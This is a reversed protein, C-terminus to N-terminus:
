RRVQRYALILQEVSHQITFLDLFRQRAAAALRARLAPSNVLSELANSLAEPADPQVLLAERDNRVADMVGPIRTSVIAAGFAMAEIIAVPFGESRSPLVFIDATALLAAKEEGVVWGIYKVRDSLDRQEVGALLADVEGDGAVLLEFSVGRAKLTEAASLLTAIGKDEVLRGLYLIIPCRGQIQRVNVDLAPDSIGNYVLPCKESDCHWREVLWEQMDKSLCIIRDARTWVAKVLARYLSPLSALYSEIAGNHIHLIFKQRLGVCTSALLWKRLLSGRISTHIHVVDVDRLIGAKLIRFWASVFQTLRRFGTSGCTAAIKLTCNESRFLAENSLYGGIVSAIGGKASVDPGVHLVTVADNKKVQDFM